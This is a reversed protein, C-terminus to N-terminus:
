EAEVISQLYGKRNIVVKHTPNERTVGMDCDKTLAADGIVSLVEGAEDYGQVRVFEKGSKASKFVEVATVTILM